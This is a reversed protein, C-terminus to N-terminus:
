LFSVCAPPGMRGPAMAARTHSVHEIVLSDIKLDVILLHELLTCGGILFVFLGLIGTVRRMWSRRANALLLATSAFIAEVCTNPFMVIGSNIWDYLRPVDAIWGVMASVGTLLAFLALSQATWRTIPHVHTRMM